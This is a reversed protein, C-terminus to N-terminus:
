EKESKNLLNIKKRLISVVTKNKIIKDRCKFNGVRVNLVECAAAMKYFNKFDVKGITPILLKSPDSALLFTEALCGFVNDDIGFGFDYHQILGPIKLLGGEIVIKNDSLNRPIAEPRSDDIIISYEPVDEPKMIRRINSTTCVIIHGKALIEKLTTIGNNSTYKHLETVSPINKLKKETSNIRFENIDVITLSSIKGWLIQALNEGMKGVGLLVIKIRELPMNVLSSIKKITLFISLLTGSHGNTIVLNKEKAYNKLTLGRRTVMPWLGGLGFVSRKKTIKSAFQLGKLAEEMTKKRDKFFIQPLIPSSIVLGNVGNRTKLTSLLFPPFKFFVKLFLKRGLFRRMLFSPPFGIYIDETRRPHVFFIFEPIVGYLLKIIFSPFKRIPLSLIISERILHFLSVTVNKYWTRGSNKKVYFQM